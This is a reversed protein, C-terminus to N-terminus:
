GNECSFEMGQLDIQTDDIVIFGSTVRLLGYAEAKKTALIHVQRGSISFITLSFKDGNWKFWNFLGPQTKKSKYSVMFDGLLTKLGDGEIYMYGISLLKDTSECRLSESAQVSCPFIYCSAVIALFIQILFIKFPARM